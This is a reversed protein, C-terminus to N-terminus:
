TSSQAVSIFLENRQMQEIICLDQHYKCSKRTKKEVNKSTWKRVQYETKVKCFCVIVVLCNNESEFVEEIEEDEKQNSEFAKRTIYGM